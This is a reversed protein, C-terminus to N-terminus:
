HSLFSTKLSLVFTLPLIYQQLCHYWYRHRSLVQVFNLLALDKHGNLCRAILFIQFPPANEM